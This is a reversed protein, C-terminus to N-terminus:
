ESYQWRVLEFGLMPDRDEEAEISILLSPLFSYVMPSSLGNNQSRNKENELIMGLHNLRLCVYFASTIRCVTAVERPESKSEQQGLFGSKCSSQKGGAGAMGEVQLPM